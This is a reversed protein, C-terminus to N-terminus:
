AGSLGFEYIQRSDDCKGANPAPLSGRVMKGTIYHTFFGPMHVGNGGVVSHSYFSDADEAAPLGITLIVTSIIICLPQLIVLM